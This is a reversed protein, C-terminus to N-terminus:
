RWPSGITMTVRSGSSWTWCPWRLRVTIVPFRCLFIVFNKLFPECFCFWFWVLHLTLDCFIHAVIVRTWWYKWFDHAVRLGHFDYNNFTDRIVSFNHYFMTKTLKPTKKSVWVRLFCGEPSGFKKTLFKKFHWDWAYIQIQEDGYSERSM